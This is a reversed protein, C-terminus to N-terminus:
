SHRRRVFKGVIEECKTFKRSRGGSRCSMLGSMSRGSLNQAVYKYYVVVSATMIITFGLMYFTIIEGTQFHPLSTMTATSDSSHFSSTSRPSFSSPGYLLPPRRCSGVAPSGIVALTIIATFVACILTVQEGTQMSRVKPATCQFADFLGRYPVAM